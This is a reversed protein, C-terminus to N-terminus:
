GEGKGAVARLLAAVIARPVSAAEAKVSRGPAWGYIRVHAMGIWEAGKALGRPHVAGIDLTLGYGPLVDALLSLAIDSSATIPEPVNTSEDPGKVYAPGYWATVVSLGEHLAVWVLADIERDPGIGGEVVAALALLETPTATM